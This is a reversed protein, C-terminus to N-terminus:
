LLFNNLATTLVGFISEGAIAGSAIPVAYREATERNLRTAIEALLAGILFSLPTSFPLMLGFGVGTASPMWKKWEPKAAEALAFVVGLALGWAIGHRAMPHLNELGIKFVDAVAKWQQAAPAPFQPEHGDIGTLRTADPVLIFYGLTTAVTGTVVGFIQAIYQRRPNAGLLYGVKLDNLLDACSAASSATIGATALNAVANQPMLAGYTLQTIKGLAGIPTVSTEGTARAAVLTLFFSLVVALTAMLPPIGFYGSALAIMAVASVSGGIVFWSNPVEVSRALADDADGPASVGAVRKFARAIMKGQMAFTVLGYSVMLPAGYWIGIQKWAAGPRTVAALLDGAPNTWTAEMAHPGLFFALLVGGLVLSLSTRLGVIVGAGLVLFSHDFRMTWDSWAFAKGNAHIKPLWDFIASSDPLLPTKTTNGKADTTSSVNLGTLLPALAGVAAAVYLARAKKLAERGESFLSQLTVAAATGEPFQLRERNIMNRKMPIALTVGMGALILTWLAVVWLPLNKGHADTTTTSLLLFAPVATYITSGTGYGASSACSQMCNNELISMPTKAIGLRLLGTWISFSLIVATIAVGLYIGVKLGIYLNTFALFFGLVCGMAVARVTLQPVADGRYVRAYWEKEEMTAVREPGIDLPRSQSVEDPTQAPRQFLPM